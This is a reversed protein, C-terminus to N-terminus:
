SLEKLVNKIFFKFRLFNKFFDLREAAENYMAEFRAQEWSLSFRGESPVYMPSKVADFSSVTRIAKTPTPARPEPWALCNAAMSPVSITAM